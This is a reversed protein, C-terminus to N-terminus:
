FYKCVFINYSFWLFSKENPSRLRLPTFYQNGPHLYICILRLIPRLLM